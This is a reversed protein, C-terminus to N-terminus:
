FLENNTIGQFDKPNKDIKHFYKDLKKLILTMFYPFLFNWTRARYIEFGTAVRNGGVM